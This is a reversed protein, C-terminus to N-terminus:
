VLNAPEDLQQGFTLPSLDLVEALARFIPGRDFNSIQVNERTVVEDHLFSKFSLVDEDLSVSDAHGSQNKGTIKGSAINERSILARLWKKLRSSDRYETAFRIQEQRTSVFRSGATYREDKLSPVAFRFTECEKLKSLREEFTRQDVLQECSFKGRPYKKSIAKRAETLAGDTADLSDLELSKQEGRNTEFRNNLIRGFANTSCSGRYSVYVGRAHPVGTAVDRNILFFNVDAPDTGPNPSRVRVVSNGAEDKQIITQNRHERSTVLMGGFRNGIEKVVILRRLRGYVFEDQSRNILFRMFDVPPIAPITKIEFGFVYARM